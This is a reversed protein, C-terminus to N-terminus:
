KEAILLAKESLNLSGSKNLIKMAVECLNPFRNAHANWFELINDYRAFTLKLYDDLENGQLEVDSDGENFEKKQTKKLPEKSN